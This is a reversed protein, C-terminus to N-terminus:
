SGRSLEAFGGAKKIARNLEGATRQDVNLKRDRAMAEVDQGHKGVLRRLTALEGASTFRSRRGGRESSLEELAHVVHSNPTKYASSAGLGVWPALQENHSPDPLDEIAEEVPIAESDEDPLEVDVINGDEDRVIRGYGKPV